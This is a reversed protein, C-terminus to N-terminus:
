PDGLIIFLHFLYTHIYTHTHTHTHLFNFRWFFTTYVSLLGLSWCVYSVRYLWVCGNGGSVCFGVCVSVMWLLFVYMFRFCFICCLGRVYAYRSCLRKECDVLFLFFSFFVCLCVRIINIVTSRASSSSTVCTRMGLFRRNVSMFPSHLYRSCSCYCCFVFVNIISNLIFPIAIIITIYLVPQVSISSLIRSSLKPLYSYTSFHNLSHIFTLSHM